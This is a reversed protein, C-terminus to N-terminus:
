MVYNSHLIKYVYYPNGLWRTPITADSESILEEHSNMNELMQASYMPAFGTPSIVALGPNRIDGKKIRNAWVLLVSYPRLCPRRSLISYESRLEPQVIGLFRTSPALHLTRNISRIVPRAHIKRHWRSDEMWSTQRRSCSSRTTARPPWFAHVSRCPRRLM